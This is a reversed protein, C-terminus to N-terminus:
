VAHLYQESCLFTKGDLIFPAPFFNSLYSDKGYFLIAKESIKTALNPPQLHTPFKDLTDVKYQVGDIILKDAIMKAKHNNKKAAKMIQYLRSRRNEVEMPLDEKM